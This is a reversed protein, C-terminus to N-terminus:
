FIVDVVLCINLALSIVQATSFFIRNSWCL